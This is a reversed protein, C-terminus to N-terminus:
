MDEKEGLQCTLRQNYTLYLGIRELDIFNSSELNTRPISQLETESM